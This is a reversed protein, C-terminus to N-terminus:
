QDTEKFTVGPITFDITYKLMENTRAMVRVTPRAGGLAVRRRERQHHGQRLAGRRRWRVYQRHPQDPVAPFERLAAAAGPLM